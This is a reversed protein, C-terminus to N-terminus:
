WIDPEQLGHILSFFPKRNLDLQIFSAWALVRQHATQHMGGDACGDM